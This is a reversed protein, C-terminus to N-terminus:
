GKLGVVEVQMFAYFAGEAQVWDLWGQSIEKLDVETAIGYEVARKAIDSSLIRDAWQEGWWKLGSEEGFTWTSTTVVLETFGADVFWQKLRRGAFADGGNREAVRNYVDFFKTLRDDPPWLASAGWDVERVACIGGTKLVRKAEILARVPESLHQLVQHAYAADFSESEYGTDYISNVEFEVNAIGRDAAHARAQGVVEESYDIGVVSGGPQLHEALDVTITGPGCGFDLLRMPSKLQPLVFAAAESARRVAHAAVVSAHHGHTYKEPYSSSIPVSM